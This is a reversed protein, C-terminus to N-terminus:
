AVRNNWERWSDCALGLTARQISITDAIDRGYGGAMSLAVAVRRERAAGLVRRDREALGAASLALRGLRDGAHPDAGALYFLLGPPAGAHRAWLAELAADLAALYDADGCGDPLAVDLDSSEKRFPFNREAHMSLTFVTPDNRFIAGLLLTLLATRSM